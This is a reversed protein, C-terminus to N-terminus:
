QRKGRELSSPAGKVKRIPVFCMNKDEEAAEPPADYMKDCDDWPHAKAFMFWCGGRYAAGKIGPCQSGPKAGKPARLQWSPLENENPMPRGAPV